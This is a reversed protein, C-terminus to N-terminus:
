DDNDGDDWNDFCLYLCEPGDPLVKFSATLPLTMGNELQIQLERIKEFFSESLSEPGTWHTLEVENGLIFLKKPKGACSFVDWLMAGFNWWPLLCRYLKLEELRTLVRILNSSLGYSHYGRYELVSCGHLELSKVISNNSAIIAQLLSELGLVSEDRLSCTKLGVLGTFLTPDSNLIDQHNNHTMRLLAKSWLSPVEVVYKWRRGNLPDILNNM